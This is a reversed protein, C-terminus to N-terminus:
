TQTENELDLVRQLPIAACQPVLGNGLLKLRNARNTLLESTPGDPDGCIAPEVGFEKWNPNLLHKTNRWRSTQQVTRSNRSQSGGKSKVFIEKREKSGGDSKQTGTSKESIFSGNNNTNPTNNNCGQTKSGMKGREQEGQLLQREQISCRQSNRGRHGISDPNAINSEQFDVRKNKSNDNTQRISHVESTAKDSGLGRHQPLQVGSQGESVLTRDKNKQNNDQSSTGQDNDTKKSLKCVGGSKSSIAKGANSSGSLNEDARSQGQNSEDNSQREFNGTNTPRIIQSNKGAANQNRTEAWRRNHGDSNPDTFDRNIGICFWRDRHHAAFVYDSARFTGWEADYGAKSLEGLVIGMGNNLIAAVNEMIVYKPRVVCVVRMLEYFLGSRTEKTIGRGKGAVSLDQCPFGGCVVDASYPEPKYTKIDDHIPITPWHKKLVKQCYPENEVFQITEYGGVLKEAAYSFGGGGSFLDIIKLKKNM